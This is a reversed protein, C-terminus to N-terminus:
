GPQILNKTPKEPQLGRALLLRSQAIMVRRAALLVTALLIPGGAAAAVTAAATAAGVTGETLPSSAGRHAGVVAPGAAGAGPRGVRQGFQRIIRGGYPLHFLEGQDQRVRRHRIHVERQLKERQYTCDRRTPRASTGSTRGSLFGQRNNLYQRTESHRPSSPALWRRGGSSGVSTRTGAIPVDRRNREQPVRCRKSASSRRCQFCLARRKRSGLCPRPMALSYGSTSSKGSRERKRERRNFHCSRRSRCASSSVCRTTEKASIIPLDLVLAVREDLQLIQQEAEVVGM